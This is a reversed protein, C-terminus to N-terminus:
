STSTAFMGNKPQGYCFTLFEIWVGVGLQLIQSDLIGIPNTKGILGTGNLGAQAIM